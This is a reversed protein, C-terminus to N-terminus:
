QEVYHERWHVGWKELLSRIEKGDLWVPGNPWDPGDRIADERGLYKGVEEEDMLLASAQRRINRLTSKLWDLFDKLEHDYKCVESESADSISIGEWFQEAIRVDMQSALSMGKDGHEGQFRVALDENIDILAVAGKKVKWFGDVEYRLYFEAIILTLEENESKSIGTRLSTLREKAIEVMKKINGAFMLKNKIGREISKKPPALDVQRRLLRHLVRLTANDAGLFRDIVGVHDRLRKEVSERTPKPIDM